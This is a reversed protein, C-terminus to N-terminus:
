KKESYFNVMEVWTVMSSPSIRTESPIIAFIQIFLAMEFWSKLESQFFQYDVLLEKREALPVEQDSQQNRDSDTRDYTKFTLVVGHFLITMAVGSDSGEDKM